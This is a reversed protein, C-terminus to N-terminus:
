KDAMCIITEIHSEETCFEKQIINQKLGYYPSYFRVKNEEKSSSRFIMNETGLHWLQRMTGSQPRNIMDDIFEWRDQQKYVRVRRKHVIKKSVYKYCSLEGIFEYYEDTEHIDSYLAQSWYYWIFRNGKFMQDFEDLMVTNHSETGCFYKLNEEDTNYKYTGCDLLINNGKYWLDVHLNDAHAPRDKYSTNKIFTLSDVKRIIHYGSNKFQLIGYDKRLPSYLLAGNAAYGFWRSDEFETDYLSEGTLIKHLAELQPRFDQYDNDSLKFFLAGDNSGLNPLYGNSDEQCQFLFNLSKYAKEYVISVFSDQHLQAIRMAWTLLQIVVRHYNMSFQLFTGDDYIQYNIEQEFWKKGKEKWLQANPFEPFLISVIYLTLTETIAHNNRVAIRSFNINHYVHHLQWYVSLVITQFVKETLCESNKYFYLAFIWNLLRLSIEQSCKYNPGCNLPNKEIWDIIQQFVFSAHDENFHYDYRIITYLYSFRSKEWVYKIDGVKKDYDNVETWHKRIDYQFGSDPNTIWDYDVGLNFYQYSFFQIQGSLINDFSEKLTQNPKKGSAITERSQFFFPRASTRWEELSLFRIQQTKTPFNRKLIGTKRQLEYFARYLFYRGGMNVILQSLQTLKNM